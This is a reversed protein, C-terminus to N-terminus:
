LDGRDVKHTLDPLTRLRAYLESATEKEDRAEARTVKAALTRALRKEEPTLSRHETDLLM